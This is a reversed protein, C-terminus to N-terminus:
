GTSMVVLESVGFNLSGSLRDSASGHLQVRQFLSPRDNEGEQSYFCLQKMPISIPDLILVGPPVFVDLRVEQSVLVKQLRDEITPFHFFTEGHHEQRLNPDSAVVVQYTLRSVRYTTLTPNLLRFSLTEVGGEFYVRLVQSVTMFSSEFVDTVFVRRADGPHYEIACESVVKVGNDRMGQLLSMEEAEDDADLIGSFGQLMYVVPRPIM